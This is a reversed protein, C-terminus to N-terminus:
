ALDFIPIEFDSILLCMNVKLRAYNRHMNLYFNMCYKMKFSLDIAFNVESSWLTTTNEYEIVAKNLYAM